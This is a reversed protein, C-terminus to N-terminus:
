FRWIAPLILRTPTGQMLPLVIARTALESIWNGPAVHPPLSALVASFGILTEALSFGLGAAIGFVLGDVTEPFDARNPLFFAPIQNLAEQIVPVVLGLILVAGIRESA